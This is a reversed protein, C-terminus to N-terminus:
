VKAAGRIIEYRHFRKLGHLSLVKIAGTDVNTLEVHPLRCRTMQRTVQWIGKSATTTVGNRATFFLTTGLCVEPNLGRISKRLWGLM